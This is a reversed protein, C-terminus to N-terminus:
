EEALHGSPLSDPTGEAAPSDMPELPIRAARDALLVPVLLLLLATGTGLLLMCAASYVGAGIGGNGLALLQGLPFKASEDWPMPQFACLLSLASLLGASLLAAGTLALRRKQRLWVPFAACGVASRRLVWVTLLLSLPLLPSLLYAKCAAEWASNVPEWLGWPLLPILASGGLLLLSATKKGRRRLFAIGAATPLVFLLYGGLSVLLYLPLREPWLGPQALARAYNEATPEAPWLPPPFRFLESVPKLSTALTVFLPFLGLLGFLFGLGGFAWHWPRRAFPDKEMTLPCVLRSIGWVLLHGAATLMGATLLCVVLVACGMGAEFRITCYDYVMAPLWHAQYDVSPFGTLPVPAMWGALLLMPVATVAMHWAARRRGSRGGLYFILCAPGLCLLLLMLLQIEGAFEQTWAVPEQLLGADMLRGNLLGYSDGSFLYQLGAPALTSLSVIGLLVGVATGLPLPLRAAAAGFLWGLLLAGGGAALLIVLTNGAAKHFIDDRLLGLYNDMGIFSPAELMNFDTLSYYLIKGLPILLLFVALFAAPVWLLWGAAHRVAPIVRCLTPKELVSPYPFLDSPASPNCPTFPVSPVSSVSPSFCPAPRVDSPAASEDPFAAPRDEGNLIEEVTVGFLAAVALLTDTDPASKGAEWKSVAQRTLHLRQALDAQTMQQEKRKSAIYQGIKQNDM